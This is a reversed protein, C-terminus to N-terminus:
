ATVPLAKANKMYKETIAQLTGPIHDNKSKPEIQEISKGRLQGYVIYMHRLKFRNEAHRSSAQSQSYKREGKLNADSKRQIKLERQETVLTKIDAKMLRIAAFKQKQEATFETFKAANTNQAASTNIITEM